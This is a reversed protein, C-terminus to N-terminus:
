QHLREPIVLVRADKSKLYSRAGQVLAGGVTALHKAVDATDEYQAIYQHVYQPTPAAHLRLVRELVGDTPDRQEKAQQYSQPTEAHTLAHKVTKDSLGCRRGIERYSMSPRLEQLQRAYFKRDDMSLALGHKLNAEFGEAFGANQMTTCPLAAIGLRQAAEYRHYGDVLRYHGDGSPTVLLPPWAEPDSALLLKIHQENLGAIRPQYHEDVRLSSLPLSVPQNM